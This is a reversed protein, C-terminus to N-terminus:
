FTFSSKLEWITITKGEGIEKKAKEYLVKYDNDYKSYEINKFEDYVDMRYSEKNYTKLTYKERDFKQM